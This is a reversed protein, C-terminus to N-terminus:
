REVLSVERLDVDDQRGEDVLNRGKDRREVIKVRCSGIGKAITTDTSHPTGTEEPKDRPGGESVFERIRQHWSQRTMTRSHTINM